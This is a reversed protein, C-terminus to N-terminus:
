NYKLSFVTDFIAQLAEDEYVLKIDGGRFQCKWVGDHYDKYFHLPFKLGNSFVATVNFTTDNLTIWEITNTDVYIHGGKPTTYALVNQANAQNSVGLLLLLAFFTSTLITKVKNKM